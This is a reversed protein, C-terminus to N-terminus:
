ANLVNKFIELIISFAAGEQNINLSCYEKDSDCTGKHSCYGDNSCGDCPTDFNFKNGNKFICLKDAGSYTIFICDKYDKCGSICEDLTNTNDVLELEAGHCDPVLM